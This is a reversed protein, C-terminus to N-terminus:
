NRTGAICALGRLVVQGGGDRGGGEGRGFIFFPVSFLFFISFGCFYILLFYFHISLM